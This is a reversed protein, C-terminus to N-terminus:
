SAVPGPVTPQAKLLRAQEAEDARAELEATRADLVLLVAVCVHGIVAVGICIAGLVRDQDDTAMLTLWVGAFLFLFNQLAFTAQPVSM